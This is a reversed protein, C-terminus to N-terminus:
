SIGAPYLSLPFHRSVFPDLDGNLRVLNYGDAALVRGAEPMESNLQAGYIASSFPVVYALEDREPHRRRPSRPARPM